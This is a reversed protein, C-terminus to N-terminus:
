SLAPVQGYGDRYEAKPKGVNRCAATRGAGFVRSQNLGGVMTESRGSHGTSCGGQHCRLKAQNARLLVLLAWHGAFATLVADKCEHKM